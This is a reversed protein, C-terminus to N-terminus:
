GDLAVSCRCNGGDFRPLFRWLFIDRLVDHHSEEVFIPQSCTASLKSDRTPSLWADEPIEVTTKIMVEEETDPLTPRRRDPVPEFQAFYILSSTPDTTALDYFVVRPQHQTFAHLRCRVSILVELVGGDTLVRQRMYKDISSRLTTLHM